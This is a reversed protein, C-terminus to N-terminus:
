KGAVGDPKLIIGENKKGNMKVVLPRAFRLHRVCGVEDLAPQAALWAWDIFGEQDDPNVTFYGVNLSTLNQFFHTGQSPEVKFDRFGCEVIVRAAGIQDWTVPIGLFPDTSGWRGVGFLVYPVGRAALMANMRAVERAVERSRAREVRHYDVVVADVLDDLKGHGLVSPSSCLLLSPDEHGLDLEEMERSLALPRLQLFGFEAPRESSPPLCVAFEMEVPTSTGAAGISLLHDLLGPLPFYSHKLIPAFSVLRM